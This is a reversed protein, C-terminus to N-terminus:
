GQFFFRCIAAMIRNSKYLSVQMRDNGARMFIGISHNNSSENPLHSVLPLSSLLQPVPLHIVPRYFCASSPPPPASFLVVAGSGRM